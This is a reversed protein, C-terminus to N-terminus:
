HYYKEQTAFLKAYLGNNEVLELHSGSEALKGQELVYIRDCFKCSGMRHSIFISTKEKTLNKLDNYINMEMIPDLAATPEDLIVFPADKYLARAIAVRQAEGGSLNVGEGNDNFLKTKVGDKLALIREKLSVDELTRLVKEEDIEYGCAVNEDLNFSFLQFDQFVVSFLKLYDEKKYRNINIGNLLIEGKTPQYLRCLLKILTTKGAGNQGVIATTENIHFKLTLDDLILKESEPYAFSLNKLEFEFGKVSSFDISLDGNDEDYKKDLFKNYSDLYDQRATFESISSILTVIDTSFRNIAGTYLLIDGVGIVKGVAQIVIFLFAVMEAMRNLLSVLAANKGSTGSFKTYRNDNGCFALKVYHELMGSMKYLRIDKANQLNMISQGWYIGVGIHHDTEKMFDKFKAQFKGSIKYAFFSIGFYFLIFFGSIIIPMAGNSYDIQIFLNVMFVLAFILSFFSQSISMFAFIQRSIGGLNAASARTRRITYMTEAKEYETYPFNMAKKIISLDIKASGNAIYYWLFHMAVSAILNIVANTSILWIASVIASEVDNEIVSNLIEASFYLSIFPQVARLLSHTITPIYFIKSIIKVLKSFSKFHKIM